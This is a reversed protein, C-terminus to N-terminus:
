IEYTTRPTVELKLKWNNFEFDRFGNVYSVVNESNINRVKQLSFTSIIADLDSVEGFYGDHKCGFYTTLVYGPNNATQIYDELCQRLIRELVYDTYDEEKGYCYEALFKKLGDKRNEKIAIISGLTMDNM